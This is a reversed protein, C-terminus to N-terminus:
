AAGDFRDSRRVLGPARRDADAVAENAATALVIRRGKAREGRIYDLMAENYPLLAPDFPATAAVRAKLGAPGAAFGGLLTALRMAGLLAIMGELLTDTRVLTGDLDVCLPLRETTVAAFESLDHAAGAPRSRPAADGPM